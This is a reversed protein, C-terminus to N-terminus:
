CGGGKRYCGSAYVSARSTIAEWDCRGGISPPHLDGSYAAVNSVGRELRVDSCSPLQLTLFVFRQILIRHTSTTSRVTARSAVVANEGERVMGTTIDVATKANM